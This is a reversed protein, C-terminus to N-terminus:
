FCKDGRLHNADGLADVLSRRRNKEISWAPWGGRLVYANFGARGSIGDAMAQARDADDAVVLVNRVHPERKLLSSINTPVGVEEGSDPIRTYPVTAPLADNGNASLDLVL